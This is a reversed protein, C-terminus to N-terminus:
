VKCLLPQSDVTIMISFKMMVHIVSKINVCMSQMNTRKLLKYEQFKSIGWTQFLSNLTKKFYKLFLSPM